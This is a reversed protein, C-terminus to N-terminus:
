IVGTSSRFFFCFVDYFPGNSDMEVRDNKGAFDRVLQKRCEAKWVSDEAKKV